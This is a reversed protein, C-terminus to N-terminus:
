GEKIMEAITQELTGNSYARASRRRIGDKTDEDWYGEFEAAIHAYTGNGEGDAPELAIVVRGAGEKLELHYWSRGFEGWHELDEVSIGFWATSVLKEVDTAVEYGHAKLAEAIQTHATEYDQDLQTRIVIREQPTPLLACGGALLVAVTVLMVLPLCRFAVSKSFVSM